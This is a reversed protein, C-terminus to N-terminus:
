NIAEPAEPPASISPYPSIKWLNRGQYRGPWNFDLYFARIEGRYRQMRQMLFLAEPYRDVAAQLEEGSGAGSGILVVVAPDVSDGTPLGGQDLVPYETLMELLLSSVQEEAEAEEGRIFVVPGRAGRAYEADIREALLCAADRYDPDPSHTSVIAEMEDKLRGYLPSLLLTDPSFEDVLRELERAAPLSEFVEVRVRGSQQASLQDGALSAFLPDSVILTRERSCGACMLLLLFLTLIRIPRMM